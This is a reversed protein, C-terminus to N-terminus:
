QKDMEQRYRGRTDSDVKEVRTHSKYSNLIKIHHSM